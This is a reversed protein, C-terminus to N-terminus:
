HKVHNNKMIQDREIFGKEVLAQSHSLTLTIHLIGSLEPYEEIEIGSHFFFSTLNTETNSFLCFRRKIYNFKM